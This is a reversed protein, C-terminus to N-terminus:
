PREDEYTRTRDESRGGAAAASSRTADDEDAGPSRPKLRRKDTSLTAALGLTLTATVAVREGRESAPTVVGHSLSLNFGPLVAFRRGIPIELSARVTVKTTNLVGDAPLAPSEPDAALPMAGHTVRARGDFVVDRAHAFPWALVRVTASHQQGHGVSPGLSSYVYGYRATIQARPRRYRLGLSVEPSFLPGRTHLYPMPSAMTVGAGATASLEQSLKRSAGLSWTAEHVDAPGRRMDLDYLAHTYHTFTYRLEPTFSTRPGADLSVSIGGHAERSDAGVAGPIDAALAGGQAVGADLSLDSRPTATLSYTLDAGMAYELRQADLFPDLTLSLTDARTGLPTALSGHLDLTLSSLPSTEISASAAVDASVDDSPPGLGESASIDVARAYRAHAEVTFLSRPGVARAECTVEGGTLSALSGASILSARVSEQAIVRLTADTEWLPLYFPLM